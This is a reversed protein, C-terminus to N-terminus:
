GYEGHLPGAATVFTTRDSRRGDQDTQGAPRDARDRPGVPRLRDPLDRQGVGRHDARVKGTKVVRAEIATALLTENLEAVAQDGCRTTIKMLTTPNPVRGDIDIHCFRRWSISDAM